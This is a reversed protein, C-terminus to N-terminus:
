EETQSFDVGEYFLSIPLSAGLTRIELEQEAKYYSRIHWLENTERYYTEILLKRSDILIYERFSELQRYAHLKESRDIEATSESLVEVILAPNLLRELAGDERETKASCVVSLDPFYYRNRKRVSVATDSMFVKCGNPNKDIARFTNRVIENHVSTGGAMMRIEGNIYELKHESTKLQEFYEEQTFRHRTIQSGEM